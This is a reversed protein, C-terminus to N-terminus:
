QQLLGELAARVPGSEATAAHHVMRALGATQRGRLYRLATEGAAGPEQRVVDLLFLGAELTDIRGIADLAVERAEADTSERFLRALSAFADRFHLARLAQLAERRVTADSDALARRVIGFSRRHPTRGAAAAAAARVLAAPHSALDEIPSLAEYVMLEGLALALEASRSANDLSFDEDTTVLLARLAARSTAVLAQPQVLVRALVWGPHGALEWEVLDQLWIEPYADQRRWHELPPPEAPPSPSAERRRAALEAYRAKRTAPLDLEALASYLRGIMHLDGLSAAVDISAVLANESVEIPGNLLLNQRAAEHWLSVARQRYHRQYRAGLSASFDAAECALLAAAHWEGAESAFELFDDYYQLVLLRQESGALLRITNLTGEAVNEFSGADKGLRLLVGYCDLARDGEGRTEFEDACAELLRQAITTEALAQTDGLTRLVRALNFHVLATQYRQGRLREQRLAARWEILAGPGDGARELAMAASVPLNADRWGAAAEQFRGAAEACLAREYPNRAPDFCAQAEDFHRLALLFMGESRRQDSKRCAALAGALWTEYAGGLARVNNLLRRYCGLAEAPRDERLAREAQEQLETEDQTFM